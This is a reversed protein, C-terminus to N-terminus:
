HLLCVFLKGEHDGHRIFYSRRSFVTDTHAHALSYHVYGSFNSITIHVLYCSVRPLTLLNIHLFVRDCRCTSIYLLRNVTAMRNHMWKQSTPIREFGHSRPDVKRGAGVIHIKQVHTIQRASCVEDAFHRIIAETGVLRAAGHTLMSAEDQVSFVTVQLLPMQMVCIRVYLAAMKARNTPVECDFCTNYHELFGTAVEVATDYDM